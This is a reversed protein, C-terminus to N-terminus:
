ANGSCESLAEGAVPEAYMHGHPGFGSVKLVVLVVEQQSYMALVSSIKDLVSRFMSCPLNTV